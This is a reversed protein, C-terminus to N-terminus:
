FMIDCNSKSGNVSSDYLRPRLAERISLYIFFYEKILLCQFDHKTDVASNNSAFQAARDRYPM